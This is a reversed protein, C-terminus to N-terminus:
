QALKVAVEVRFFTGGSVDFGLGTSDWAQALGVQRGGRLDTSPQQENADISSLM